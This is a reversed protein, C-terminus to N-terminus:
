STPPEFGRLEAMHIDDICFGWMLNEKKVELFVLYRLAPNEKKMSKLNKIFDTLQIIKEM